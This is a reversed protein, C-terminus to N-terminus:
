DILRNNHKQMQHVLEKVDAKIETIDEKLDSHMVECLKTDQKQDAIKDIKKNLFRSLLGNAGLAAILGSFIYTTGNPM